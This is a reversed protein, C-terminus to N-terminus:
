FFSGHELHQLQMVVHGIVKGKPVTLSLGNYLPRDGHAFHVDKLEVLQTM